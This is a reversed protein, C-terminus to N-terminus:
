NILTKEVVHGEKPAGANIWEKVFQIQNATLTLGGIPMPSGYKHVAKDYDIKQYLFSQEPNNKVIFKLNAKIAQSNQPNLALLNDYLEAGQLTIGKQQTGPSSAVAGHCGSLACSKVLIKYYILGYSSDPAQYAPAVAADKKNCSILIASAILTIFTLKKM